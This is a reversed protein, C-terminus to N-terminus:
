GVKLQDLSSSGSCGCYKEPVIVTENASVTLPTTGCSAQVFLLEAKGEFNSAAFVTVGEDPELDGDFVPTMATWTGMQLTYLQNGLLLGKVASKCNNKLTFSIAPVSIEKSM